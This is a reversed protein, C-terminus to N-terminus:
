STGWGREILVKATEPKVCAPSGDNTNFLLVMGSRCEVDAPAIGHKVQKLPSAIIDEDGGGRGVEEIGPPTEEEPAVEAGPLSEARGGEEAKPPTEKKPNCVKCDLLCTDEPCYGCSQKKEM